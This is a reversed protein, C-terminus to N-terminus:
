KAISGDLAIFDDTSLEATTTRVKRGDLLSFYTYVNPTEGNSGKIVRYVNDSLVDGREGPERFTWKVKGRDMGTVTIMAKPPGEVADEKDTFFYEHLVLTKTGSGVVAFRNSRTVFRQELGTPRIEVSSLASYRDGPFSIGITGELIVFEAILAALFTALIALREKTSLKAFLM